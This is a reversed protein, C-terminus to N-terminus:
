RDWVTGDDTYVPFAFTISFTILPYALLMGLYFSITIGHCSFGPARVGRLPARARVGQRCRRSSPRNPSPRWAASARAKCADTIRSAIVWLGIMFSASGVCGGVNLLVSGVRFTLPLESSGPDGTMLGLIALRLDNINSLLGILNLGFGPVCVFEIVFFFTRWSRFNKWWKACRITIRTPLQGTSERKPTLSCM